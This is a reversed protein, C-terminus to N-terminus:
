KKERGENRGYSETLDEAQKNWGRGPWTTEMMRMGALLAEKEDQTKNRKWAMKIFRFSEKAYENDAYKASDLSASQRNNEFRAEQERAIAIFRSLVMLTPFHPSERKCQDIGHRLTNFPIGSLERIYFQAQVDSMRRAYFEKLDTVAEKPTV